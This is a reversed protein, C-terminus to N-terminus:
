GSGEDHNSGADQNFGARRARVVGGAYFGAVFALLVFPIASARLGLVSRMIISVTIPIYLTRAWPRSLRRYGPRLYGCPVSMLFVFLLYAGLVHYYYAAPINIVQIDLM